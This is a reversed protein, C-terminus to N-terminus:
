AADDQKQLGAKIAAIMKRGQIPDCAAAVHELVGAIPAPGELTRSGDRPPPAHSILTEARQQTIRNREAADRLAKVRGAPDFGYSVTWKPAVGDSRARLVDATYAERFAMRAGVQDDAELLPQCVGFARAMEECWVVSAQESKPLMAWAEEPGPRGDDLRAIVDALCLRGRVERRCRSLANLVAPVPFRALDAAFMRAAATELPPNGMVQATVALAKLVDPSAQLEPKM